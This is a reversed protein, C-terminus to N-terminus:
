LQFLSLPNPRLRDFYQLANSECSNQQIKEFGEILRTRSIGTM